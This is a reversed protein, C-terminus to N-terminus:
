KVELENTVKTEGVKAAAKNFVIRKEDANAVTGRLTVYGRETLVQVSRALESLSKDSTISERILRSTELDAKSAGALDNSAIAPVAPAETKFSAPVPTGQVKVVTYANNYIVGGDYGIVVREGIKLDKLERMARREDASLKVDPNPAPRGYTPTENLVFMRSDKAPLYFTFDSDAKAEPDKIAALREAYSARIEAAKRDRLDASLGSTKTEIERLMGAYTTAYERKAGRISFKGSDADVSLVVGEVWSDIKSNFAMEVPIEDLALLSFSSFALAVLSLTKM